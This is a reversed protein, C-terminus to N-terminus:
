EGASLSCSLAAQSLLPRLSGTQGQSRPYFNRSGLPWDRGPEGQSGKGEEPERRVSPLRAEQALEREETDRQVLRQWPALSDGANRESEAMCGNGMPVKELYQSNPSSPLLSCQLPPNNMKQLMVRLHQKALQRTM